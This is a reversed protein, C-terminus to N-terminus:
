WFLDRPREAHALKALRLVRTAPRHAASPRADIRHDTRDQGHRLRTWRLLPMALRVLVVRLQASRSRQM